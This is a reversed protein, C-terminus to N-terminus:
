SVQVYLKHRTGYRNVIKGDAYECTNEENDAPNECVDVNFIYQGKLVNEKPIDIRLPIYEHENNKITFRDEVMLVWADGCNEPTEESSREQGSGLEYGCSIEDRKDSDIYFGDGPKFPDDEADPYATSGGYTVIVKFQRSGGMENNIGLNFDVYDGRKAEKNSYPVVVLSGDDLLSNIQRQTDSDVQDRLEATKSFANSFISIGIGILVIGLIIVVLMNISLEFGKHSSLM